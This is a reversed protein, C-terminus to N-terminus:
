VYVYPAKSFSDCENCNGLCRFPCIEVKDGYKQALVNQLSKIDDGGMVGCAKGPGVSLVAKSPAVFKFFNDFTMVEYIRALPIDMTEALDVADKWDVYGNARQIEHLAMNLSGRKKRWKDGVRYGLCAEEAM